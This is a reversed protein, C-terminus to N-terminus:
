ASSKIRAVPQWGPDVGLERLHRLLESAQRDQEDTRAPDNAVMAYEQLLQSAGTRSIDFYRSVIESPTMILPSDDIIEARTYGDEGFSLDVVEEKRCNAVTMMSHATTIIQFDNEINCLKRLSQVLDLQAQPHLARDIDDLLILRPRGARYHVLTLIALLFLTGESLHAAPVRGAGVEASLTFGNQLVKERRLLPQGDINIVREEYSEIQQEEPYIRKFGRVLKGMAEEIKEISGDRRGIVHNLLTPLGSGDYRMRPKNGAAPSPKKIADVDLRLRVVSTLNKPFPKNLFTTVNESGKRPFEIREEQGEQKTWLSAGMMEWIQKEDSTIRKCDALFGFQRDREVVELGWQGNCDHSLLGQPSRQDVFFVDLPGCRHIKHGETTNPLQLLYHIGDLASSKGVGNPGILVTFPQLPIRVDRLAKFSTFRAETLM